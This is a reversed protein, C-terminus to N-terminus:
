SGDMRKELELEDRLPIGYEGKEPLSPKLRRSERLADVHVAALRFGRRQYFRLADVNDNTTILWLRRCAAQRALDEVAALLHSGIGEWRRLAALMVLECERNALRYAAVGLRRDGEWAIFGPLEAPRYLHGRSVITEAGFWEITMARVWGRDGDGLSRLLTESAM